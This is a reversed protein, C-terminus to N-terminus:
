AEGPSFYRDNLAKALVIIDKQIQDLYRHLTQGSLRQPPSALREAFAKAADSVEPGPRARFDKELTQLDAFATEAAGRVSRPFHLNHLLFAAADEPKPNFSHHRQFSHYGSASRLLTNWWAVDPMAAPDNDQDAQFTKMDLLRTVQDAREIAGGLRHFLWAEDHHWTTEMMGRHACCSLRTEECIDALKSIAFRRKALQTLAEYFVSLQRWSETSILHRLSRANERAMRICSLVSNPNASDTFYFRAVNVGTVPKGKESFAETDAYVNLIPSWADEDSQDIAFSETVALVRTLSEAREIYRGMWFANEAIRSLMM